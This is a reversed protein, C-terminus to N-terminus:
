SMIEDTTKFSQKNTLELRTLQIETIYMVTSLMIIVCIYYIKYSDIQSLNKLLTKDSALHDCSM